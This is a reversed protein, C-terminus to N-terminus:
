TELHRLKLLVHCKGCNVENSQALIHRLKHTLDPPPGNPQQLCAGDPKGLWERPVPNALQALRQRSHLRTLMNALQHHREIWRIGDHYTPEQEKVLAM